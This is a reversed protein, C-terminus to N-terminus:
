RRIKFDSGKSKYPHDFLSYAIALLVQPNYFIPNEQEM